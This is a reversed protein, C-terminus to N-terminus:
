QNTFNGTIESNLAPLTAGNISLSKKAQQAPRLNKIVLHSVHPDIWCNCDEFAPRLKQMHRAHLNKVCDFKTQLNFLFISNM